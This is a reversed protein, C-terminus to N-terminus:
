CPKYGPLGTPSCARVRGMINVVLHLAQGSAAQFRLTGTPTSTGLLPDFVMAGVNSQLHLPGAGSFGVSRAVAQNANCSSSGNAQCKCDSNAGHFVVYCSGAADQTFKMRMTRNQAIALSRAHQIDTELQAAAGELHRREMAKKFSPIATSLTIAAVAVVILSEVLTLGRSRTAPRAAPLRHKMAIEQLSPIASV